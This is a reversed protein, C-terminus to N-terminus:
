GRMNEFGTSLTPVGSLFPGSLLLATESNIKGTAKIDMTTQFKQIALKLTAASPETQQELYGLRQLYRTVESNSLSLDTSRFIPVYEKRWIHEFQAKPLQYIEGFASDAVIATDQNMGILAIAHPSKGSASYLWTALVGPRNIRQMQEWTPKLEMGNMGFSHAAVILQPMSTGLRSTGALRAVDSETAALGWIRLVNALASPACSSDSTQQFIGTSLLNDKLQPYIPVLFYAEAGTFSGLGLIGLLAVVIVQTRATRWSIVFALGCFGVLIVRMLTWTVRMGYVRWQLPLGHFQPVYLALLLLGVYLGLFALSISTKGKFLNNATAGKRLLLRGLHKGWAFALIGLLLTFIAEIWM